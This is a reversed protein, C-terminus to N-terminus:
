MGLLTQLDITGDLTVSGAGVSAFSLEFPNGNGPGILIVTPLADGDPVLLLAGSNVKLHGVQSKRGATVVVKDPAVFVTTASVGYAALRSEALRAAETYSITLTSIAKRSDGDVVVTEITVPQGNPDPMRVGSLTGQVTAIKRDFLEVGGLTLDVSAANLGGMRVQSSTLRIADAHGTLIRPPLDAKVEVRTNTGTFGVANLANTALWSAGFPLGFWVLAFIVAATMLLRILCSRM